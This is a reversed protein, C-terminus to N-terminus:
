ISFFAFSASCLYIYIYINTNKDEKNIKEEINKDILEKIEEGRVGRRNKIEKELKETRREICVPYKM